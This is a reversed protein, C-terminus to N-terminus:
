GLEWKLISTLPLTRETDAVADKARVRTDSVGTIMASFSLEEGNGLRATLQVPLRNKQAFQLQKILNQEELEPTDTQLLREAVQLANDIDVTTDNRPNRKWSLLQGQPGVRVAVYGADRIALWVVDSKLRSALQQEGTRFLGLPALARDRELQLSDIRDSFDVVSGFGSAGVKINLLSREADELLYSVPQPLESGSLEHLRGAIQSATLGSELGRCISLKSLRFRSALGIDVADAFTSLELHLLGSIPGAITISQDAQLIIRETPQPFAASLEALVEAHNGELVRALLHNAKGSNSLGIQDGHKVVLNSEAAFLPFERGIFSSLSEGVRIESLQDLDRDLHQLVQTWANQDSQVLWAMGAESAVWRDDERLILGIATALAFLRQIEEASFHIYESFTVADPKRLGQKIVKLWHRDTSLVLERLAIMSQGISQALLQSPVSESNLEATEVHPAGVEPPNAPLLKTILDTVVEFAGAEDALLNRKLEPNTAGALLSFIQSRHLRALRSTLQKRQLLFGGLDLLDSFDKGLADNIRLLEALEDRPSTGLLKALRLQDSM